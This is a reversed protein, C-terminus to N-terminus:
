PKFNFQKLTELLTDNDAKLMLGERWITGAKDKQGLHWHVEGLHAAIEADPRAKFAAELIRLAEQLNGARYELWGLSDQIFPDRPALQVAKLILERAEDLRIKRDALSYGLANYAHPDNPKAKILGRLLSEMQEFRGLKECLMAMESQLDTDAPFQALAKEITAFAASIQKDERLWQSLALAKLRVEQPNSTKVQELVKLGEAKRGQQALLAARRSAVKLPDAEAPIKALWEDAMAFRGQKQAMQSLALYAESIGGMRDPDNTSTSLKLYQQLSQEAQLVQSLDSQLLGLFLWGPAFEPHQQTLQALQALAPQM